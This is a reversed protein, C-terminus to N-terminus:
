DEANSNTADLARFVDLVLNRVAPEEMFVTMLATNSERGFRAVAQRVRKKLAELRDTEGADAPTTVPGIPAALPDRNGAARSARTLSTLLTVLQNHSTQDLTLEVLQPEPQSEPRAEPAAGAAFGPPVGTGPFLEHGRRESAREAAVDAPHRAFVGALHLQTAVHAAWSRSTALPRSWGCTCDPRKGTPRSGGRGTDPRHADLVERALKERSLREARATEPTIKTMDTTPEDTTM